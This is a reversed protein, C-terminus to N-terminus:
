SALQTLIDEFYAASADISFNLEAFKRASSVIEGKEAHSKSIYAVLADAIAEPRPNVLASFSPDVMLESHPTNTVVCYCGCAAAEVLTQSPYNSAVPPVNCAVAARPFWAKPDQYGELRVIDGVGQSEVKARLSEAREGSGCIAVTYGNRRLEGACAACSEILLDVGKLEELRAAFMVILREKNGSVNADLDTFSSPTTTVQVANRALSSYYGKQWPYLVDVWDAHALTTKFASTPECIGDGFSGNAVTVLVRGCLARPVRVLLSNFGSFDFCHTVDPRLRGLARVAGTVQRRTSGGICVRRTFGELGCDALRAFEDFEDSTCGRVVLSTEHALSLRDYIRLLRREAGGFGRSVGLSLCLRM